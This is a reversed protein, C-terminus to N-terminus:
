DTGFILDRIELKKRVQWATYNNQEEITTPYSSTRGGQTNHKSWCKEEIEEQTEYICGVINIYYMGGSGANDGSHDSGLWSYISQIGALTDPEGYGQPNCGAAEREAARAMIARYEYSNEDRYSLIQNCFVELAKEYSDYGYDEPSQNNSVGVNWYNHVGYGNLKHNEGVATMVVYEPNVGVEQCYEYTYELKRIFENGENVGEYSYNSILNKTALEVFEEKKLASQTLNMGDTAYGVFMYQDQETILEGLEPHLLLEDYEITNGNVPKVVYFELPDIQPANLWDGDDEGERIEFHLHYGSSNGSSGTLALTEGKKVTQGETVEFTGTQLHAYLTYYGNDHQIVIYNGYGNGDIQNNSEILLDKCVIIKGDAAAVVDVRPVSLDIGTHLGYEGPNSYTGGSYANSYGYIYSVYKYSPVPWLFLNSRSNINRSNDADLLNNLGLSVGYVYPITGNKDVTEKFLRKLEDLALKFYERNYGSVRSEPTTSVLYSNFIKSNSNIFDINNLSSTNSLTVYKKYNNSSKNLLEEYKEEEEEVTTNNANSNYTANFSILDSMDYTRTNSSKQTLTDEWVRQIIHTGQNNEKKGEQVVYKDNATYTNTLTKTYTYLGENQKNGTPNATRSLYVETGPSVNKVAQYDSDNQRTDSDNFTLKSDNDLNNLIRGGVIFDTVKSITDIKNETYLENYYDQLDTEKESKPNIRKLADQENYKIYNFKNAIVVDFTKAESIYYKNKITTSSDIEEELMPDIQHNEGERQNKYVSASSKEPDLVRPAGYSYSVYKDYLINGQDDTTYTRKINYTYVKCYVQNYQASELYTYEYAKVGDESATVDEFTKDLDDPYCRRKGEKSYLGDLISDLTDKDSIFQSTTDTMYGYKSYDEETKNLNRYVYDVKVLETSVLEYENTEMVAKYKYKLVIDINFKSRYETEMYDHFKTNLVYKQIDYRHAVIESYANKIVSYTFKSAENQNGSKTIFTSHFALPIHWTQMYPSTLKIFTELKTVGDNPYRLGLESDIIMNSESITEGSHGHGYWNWTIKNFNYKETMLMHIYLPQNQDPNVVTTNNSDDSGYKKSLSEYTRSGVDNTSNKFERDFNEYADNIDDITFYLYSNNQEFFEIAQRKKEREEETLTEDNVQAKMAAITTNVSSTVQKSSEEKNVDIILYTVIGALLTGIFIKVPLPLVSIVKAIKKITKMAGGAFNSIGKLMSSKGPISDNTVDNDEESDDDEENDEEYDDYSEYKYKDYKNDDNNM